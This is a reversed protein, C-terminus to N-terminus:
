LRTPMLLYKFSVGDVTGGDILAPKTASSLLMKVPRHGALTLADALFSANFNVVMEDGEVDVPLEIAAAGAEDDGTLAVEGAAIELRVVAGLTTRKAMPEAAMIEEVVASTDDVSITTTAEVTLMKAFDPFQGEIQPLLETRDGYAIRITGRGSGGPLVTLTVPEDGAEVAASMVDAAFEGPLLMSTTDAKDTAVVAYALRYSDTAAARLHTGNSALEIGSTPKSSDDSVTKATRRLLDGLARGPLTVAASGKPIEREAPLLLEVVNLVYRRRGAKLVVREGEFSLEVDGGKLRNAIGLTVQLPLGVTIDETTTVEAFKIARFRDGNTARLYASGGTITLELVQFQVRLSKAAAKTVFAVAHKFADAALTVSLSTTTVVTTSM